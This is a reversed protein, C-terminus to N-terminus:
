AAGKLEPVFKVVIFRIVFFRFVFYNVILGAVGGVVLVITQLTAAPAGNAAGVFGILAGLVAGVFFGAIGSCIAFCGYSKLFDSEHLASVEVAARAKPPRYPDQTL